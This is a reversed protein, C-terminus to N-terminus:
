DRKYGSRKKEGYYIVRQDFRELDGQHHNRPHIEIVGQFGHGKLLRAYAGVEPLTTTDYGVVNASIIILKGNPKLIRNAQELLRAPSVGKIGNPDIRIAEACVYDVSSDPIEDTLYNADLAFHPDVKPDIDLTVWGREAWSATNDGSGLVIGVKNRPMRAMAERCDDIIDLPKYSERMGANNLRTIADGAMYVPDPVEQEPSISTILDSM